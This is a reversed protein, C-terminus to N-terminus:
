QPGIEEAVTDKASEKCGMRFWDTWALQEGTEKDMPFGNGYGQAIFGFMAELHADQVKELDIM